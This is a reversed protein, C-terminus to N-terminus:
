IRAVAPREVVIVGSVGELLRAVGLARQRRASRLDHDFSLSVVGGAASTGIHFGDNGMSRILALRLGTDLRADEVERDGEGLRRGPNAPALEVRNVVSRVGALSRAAASALEMASPSVVTGTLTVAGHDSNAAVDLSDTGLKELLVQKVQLALIADADTSARLGMEFAMAASAAALLIGLVATSPFTKLRM